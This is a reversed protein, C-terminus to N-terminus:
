SVEEHVSGRDVYIASGQVGDVDVFLAGAEQLRMVQSRGAFKCGERLYEEQETEAISIRGAM